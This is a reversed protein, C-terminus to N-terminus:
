ETATIAHTVALTGPTLALKDNLAFGSAGSVVGTLFPTGLLM